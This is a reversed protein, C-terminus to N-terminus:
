NFSKLASLQPKGPFSSTPRLATGSLRGSHGPWQGARRIQVQRGRMIIRSPEKFYTEECVLFRVPGDTNPVLAGTRGLSSLGATRCARRPLGPITPGFSPARRANVVSSNFYFMKFISCSFFSVPSKACLRSLLLRPEGLGRGWSHELSLSLASAHCGPRSSTTPAVTQSPSPTGAGTPLVCGLRVCSKRPAGSGGERSPTVLPEVSKGSAQPSDGTKGM